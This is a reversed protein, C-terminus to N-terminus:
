QASQTDSNAAFSSKIDQLTILINKTVYERIDMAAAKAEGRQSKAEELALLFGETDEECNLDAADKLATLHNDYTLNFDAVLQKVEAVQTELLATDADTAALRTVISDLKATLRTYKEQRNTKVTEGATIIASLKTQAGACRAAVRNKRTSTVKDMFKEERAAKREEATPNVSTTDTETQAQVTLMPLVLFVSLTSISMILTKLKM